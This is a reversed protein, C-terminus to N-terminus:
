DDEWADAEMGLDGGDQDLNKWDLDYIRSMVQNIAEDPLRPATHCLRLHPAQSKHLGERKENAGTIVLERWSEAWCGRMRWFPRVERTPNGHKDPLFETDGNGIASQRLGILRFQRIAVSAHKQKWESRYFVTDDREILRKDFGRSYQKWSTSGDRHSYYGPMIIMMAEHLNFEWDGLKDGVSLDLPETSYIGDTAFSIMAHPKQLAARMLQARCGATVYGAWEIQFYPPKTVELVPKGKRHGETELAPKGDDGKKATGIRYGLQQAMKGYCSNLGLKLVIQAAGAEADGKKAASKLVKRREYYEEVWAFPKPNALEHPVWHWYELVDLQARGCESGAPDMDFRYQLNSVWDAAVKWEPYWHWGQGFAPYVIAGKPTRWFLPYFPVGKFPFAWKSRVLVFGQPVKNHDITGGRAAVVHRWNGVSLDPLDRIISPYASCVDYHYIPREEYGIQIAEIHGGSYAYRAANFVLPAHEETDLKFQKIDHKKFLAAAVAGAGDWRTLKLEVDPHALAARLKIMIEVLVENEARNYEIMDAFQDLAFTARQAKMAAIRALHPHDSALWTKMTTVFSCQFFGIVDWVTFSAYPKPKKGNRMKWRKTGKIYPSGDCYCEVHFSKRPQYTILYAVGDYVVELPRLARGNTQMLLRKAQKWTLDRLIQNIDYSAGYCIFIAKRNRAAIDSLFALCESTGLRNGNRHLEHHEGDYAALLTYIHDRYKYDAVGEFGIDDYTQGIVHQEGIEWGEGDIAVFKGVDWKSKHKRSKRRAVRKGSRNPRTKDREARVVARKADARQFTARRAAAREEDSQYKQPM